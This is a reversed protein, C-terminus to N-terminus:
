KRYESNSGISNKEVHIDFQWAEIGGTGTQSFLYVACITIASIGDGAIGTTNYAIAHSNNTTNTTLPMKYWKYGKSTTGGISYVKYKVIFTPTGGTTTHKYHVHPFATSGVKISHPNQCIMYIQCKSPGTTDTIFNYIM